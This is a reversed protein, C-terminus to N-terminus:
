YELYGLTILSKLMNQCSREEQIPLFLATPLLAGIAIAIDALFAISYQLICYNIGLFVIAINCYHLIKKFLISVQIKSKKSM